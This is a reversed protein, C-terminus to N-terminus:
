AILQIGTEDTLLYVGTEDTLYYVDPIPPSPIIGENPIFPPSFPTYSNIQLNASILGNRMRDFYSSQRLPGSFKSSKGSLVSNKKFKNILFEEM